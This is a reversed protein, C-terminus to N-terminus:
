QIDIYNLIFILMKRGNEENCTWFYNDGSDDLYGYGYPCYECKNRHESKYPENGCEYAKIVNDLNPIKM